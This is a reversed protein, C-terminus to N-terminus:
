YKTLGTVIAPDACEAVTISARTDCVDGSKLVPALEIREYAGNAVYTRVGGKFPVELATNFDKDLMRITDLATGNEVTKTDGRGSATFTVKFALAQDTDMRVSFGTRGVTRGTDNYAYCNYLSDGDFKVKDLVDFCEKSNKFSDNVFPIVFAALIGVAVLTLIVLLVTAIIPSVGRKTFMKMVIM